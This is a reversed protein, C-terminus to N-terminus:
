NKGEGMHTEPILSLGDPMLAPVEVGQTMDATQTTM